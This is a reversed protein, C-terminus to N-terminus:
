LVNIKLKLNHLETQFNSKRSNEINLNDVSNILDLKFQPIEIDNIVEKDFIKRNNKIVKNKIKDKIEHANINKQKAIVFHNLFQQSAKESIM